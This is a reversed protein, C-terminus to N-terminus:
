HAPTDSCVDIEGHSIHTCDSPDVLTFMMYVLKLIFPEIISIALLSTSQITWIPLIWCDQLLDTQTFDNTM